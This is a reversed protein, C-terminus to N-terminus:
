LLRPSGGLGLRAAPLLDAAARPARKVAGPRFPRAESRPATPLTKRISYHIRNSLRAPARRGDSHPMVVDVLVLRAASPPIEASPKGALFTVTHAALAQGSLTLLTSDGAGVTLSRLTVEATFANTIVLDYEVHTRGDSGFVFQPRGLANVQIATVEPSRGEPPSIQAVSCPAFVGAAVAILVALIGIGGLRGGVVPEKGPPPSKRDRSWRRPRGVFDRDRPRGFALLGDLARM